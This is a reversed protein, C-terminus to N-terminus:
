RINKVEDLITEMDVTAKNDSWFATGQPNLPRNTVRWEVGDYGWEKLKIPVDKVEYEPMAVSFVSYQMIYKGGRKLKIM